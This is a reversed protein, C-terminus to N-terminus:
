APPRSNADLAVRRRIHILPTSDLLLYTISFYLQHCSTQFQVKEDVSMRSELIKHMKVFEHIEKIWDYEVSNPKEPPEDQGGILM